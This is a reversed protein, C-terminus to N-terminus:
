ATPTRCLQSHPVPRGGGCTCIPGAHRYGDGTRLRDRGFRLLGMLMDRALGRDTGCLWVPVGYAVGGWSMLTALVKTGQLKSYGSHNVIDEASAEIILGRVPMVSLRRCTRLFRRRGKGVSGFLDSLSKREFSMVTEYGAVSYDGTRLTGLTAPPCTILPQQERTDVIVEAPDLDDM